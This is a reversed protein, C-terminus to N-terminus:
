SSATSVGSDLALTAPSSTVSGASNTVIVSYQGVNAASVAPLLVSDGSAGAIDTGNFAWQFTVGSTNAVVVSFSAFDGASVLQDVLPGVIQPAALTGPAEATLDGSADSSYILM